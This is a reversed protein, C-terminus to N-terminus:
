EVMFGLAIANERIRRDRTVITVLQPQEDILEATALHIADLTRVPEVPFPRTVRQLISESMSVTDCRGKFTRLRRIVSRAESATLDGSVRRRVVVRLAEVFTLESAIRRGEGRLAEDATRDLHLLAALLGSTEVYRFTSGGAAAESAVDRVTRSTTRKVIRM